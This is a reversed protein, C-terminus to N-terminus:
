RPSQVRGSSQLATARPVRITDLMERVSQIVLDPQDWQIYHKSKEALIWRGRTSRAVIEKQMAVWERHLGAAAEPTMGPVSMSGATLATLPLPGFPKVDRRVEALFPVLGNALEATNHMAADSTTRAANIASTTDTIEGQAVVRDIGLFHITPIAKMVLRTWAPMGKLRELQDEHSGDVLVLGAVEGQYHV